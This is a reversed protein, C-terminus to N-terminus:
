RCSAAPAANGGDLGTREPQATGDHQVDAEAGLLDLVRHTRRRPNQATM